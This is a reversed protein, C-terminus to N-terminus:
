SRSGLRNPNPASEPVDRIRSDQPRAAATIVTAPASVVKLTTPMRTLRDAEGGGRGASGRCRRPRRAAQGRVGRGGRARGAGARRRGLRGGAAAEWRHLAELLADFDSRKVRVRRGIRIAPLYGNDILNKLVTQQNMKLEAAIEAVTLLEDSEAMQRFAVAGV